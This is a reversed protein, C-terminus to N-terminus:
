NKPKILRRTNVGGTESTGLSKQSGKLDSNEGFNFDKREAAM